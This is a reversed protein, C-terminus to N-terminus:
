RRLYHTVGELPVDPHVFYPGEWYGPKVEKFSTTVTGDRHRFLLTDGELEWYSENAHCSRIEYGKGPVLNETLVLNCLPIDVAKGHEKSRGFTWDGVVSSAAATRENGLTIGFLEIVQQQNTEVLLEIHISTVKTLPIDFRTLFSSTTYQDRISIKKTNSAITSPTGTNWEHLHVGAILEFHSTRDGNVTVRLVPQGNLSNGWWAGGALIYISNASFGNVHVTAKQTYRANSGFWPLHFQGGDRLSGGLPVKDNYIFQGGRLGAVGGINDLNVKEYTDTAIEGGPRIKDREVKLFAKQRRVDASDFGMQLIEEAARVGGELDVAKAENRRAQNVAQKLTVHLDRLKTARAVATAAEANGPDLAAAEHALVIAEDFKGETIFSKAKVLKEHSEKAKAAKKL